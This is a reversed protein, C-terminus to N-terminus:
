AALATLARLPGDAREFRQKMTRAASSAIKESRGGGVTLTLTTLDQASPALVVAPTGSRRLLRAERLAQQTFFRRPATELGQRRLGPELGMPALIVVLDLGRGVLLDANTSSWAGGDVYDRGDLRVPTLYGPVACSANVATAVDTRPAGPSGFAVRAGTDLRVACLLMEREPWADGFLRRQRAGIQSGDVAGAPGLASLLAGPRARWPRVVARLVAGPSSPRLRMGARSFPALGVDEGAKAFITAGEDSPQHRLLGALLDATGIGARLFSGVLSGASTGVVVEASRLDVGSAQELAALVATDWAYGPVGGAGLVLGFRPTDTM